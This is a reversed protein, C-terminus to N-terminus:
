YLEVERLIRDELVLGSALGAREIESEGLADLQDKRAELDVPYVDALAHFWALAVAIKGVSGPQQHATVRLGAYRPHAPDTLDLVALGYRSADKGLFEGLQAALEPDSDPLVFGPRDALGLRVQDMTWLTGPVLTGRAMLADRARSFALLRSIDTSEYGDLTYAHGFLPALATLLAAGSIFGRRRCLAVLKDMIHAEVGM